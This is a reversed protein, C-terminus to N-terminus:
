QQMYRSIHTLNTATQALALLLAMVLSNRPTANVNQSLAHERVTILDSGFYCGEVLPRAV